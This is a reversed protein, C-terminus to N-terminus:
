EEKREYWATKCLEEYAKNLKAFKEQASEDDPHTDPHCDKSYQRYAKKIESKKDKDFEPYEKLIEQIKSKEANKFKASFVRHKAAYRMYEDLSMKVEVGISKLMESLKEWESQTSDSISFRVFEGTKKRRLIECRCTFSLGKVIGKLAEQEEEDFFIYSAKNTIFFRELRTDMKEVFDELQKHFNTCAFIHAYDEHTMVQSISFTLNDAESRINKIAVATNRSLFIILNSADYPATKEWPFKKWAKQNLTLQM